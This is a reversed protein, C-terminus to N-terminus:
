IRCKCVQKCVKEFAVANQYLLPKENVFLQMAFDSPIKLIFVRSSNVFNANKGIELWIIVVSHTFVVKVFSDKKRCAHCIHEVSNFNLFKEVIRNERLILRLIFCKLITTKFPSGEVSVLPSRVYVQTASNKKKLNKM